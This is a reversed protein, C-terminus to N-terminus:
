WRAGALLSLWLGAMLLSLLTVPIGIRAHEAFGVTVDVTRAREMAIINAMSGTILLNGALTSFLALAYLTTTSLPSFAALLAVVLPVNGILNAGLLTVPLLHGLASLAFGSATLAAITERAPVTTLAVETVVFLATFLVLLPWDIHALRERTSLERSTLLLAAVVLVGEVKPLPAAFLALLVATALVTKALRARHLSAAEPDAAEEAPAGLLIRNRWALWIVAVVLALTAVAPPACLLLFQWFDLGGKTAILVNQPNGLITAASGANTAMATAIVFPRPDLGRRRLGRCLAPVTAFVVVDNTLIASLGGAVFVVVTLLRLPSLRARVLRLSCWHYFGALEFEASLLMLGFLVLLTPFDIASRAGAGDVIGSFYLLLAGLLAIGTRDIGSGPVRGLAMGLYVLAFVALAAFDTRAAKRTPFATM